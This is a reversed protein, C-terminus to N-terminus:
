RFLEIDDLDYRRYGGPTRYKAKLKEENDWIKLTKITVGRM